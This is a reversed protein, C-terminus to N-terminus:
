LLETSTEHAPAHRQELCRTLAGILAQVLHVNVRCEDLFHNCTHGVVHRMHSLIYQECQQM